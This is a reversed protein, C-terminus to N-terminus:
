ACISDGGGYLSENLVPPMDHLASNQVKSDRGDIL